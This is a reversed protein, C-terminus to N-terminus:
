SGTHRIYCVVLAVTFAMMALFSAYLLALEWGRKGAMLFGILGIGSALLMMGSGLTRTRTQATSVQGVRLLCAGVIALLCGLAIVPGIM